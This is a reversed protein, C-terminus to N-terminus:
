KEIIEPTDIGEKQRFERAMNTLEASFEPDQSAQYGLATLGQRTLFAERFMKKYADNVGGPLANRALATKLGHRQSGTSLMSALIRNRAKSALGTTLFVSVGEKGAILRADSSKSLDIPTNADYIKALDYWFNADDEGLVAELKRAFQSKGTKSPSEYAAIFKKADLIPTFPANSTPTGGPFQDLLERIFDGKYLNRSAPSLKNLDTMASKVQGVTSNDSLIAKSLVDPDINSFNTSKALKFIQSNIVERQEKELAMRKGITRTLQDRESQTLAQSMRQVDNFTLDAVKNGKLLRINKNLSELSRQMNGGANNGYLSKLMGPDIKIQSIPKANVGGIGIDNLYQAQMLGLIRDAEGARTPDSQGLQRLATAVRDVTAPESMVKSVIERPTTAQEGAAEKLINGLLNKEFAVREQVKKTTEEFLDGINVVSGNPLTTNISGYVNRRYDSLRAAIAAGFADTTKGGVANEVRANRFDRIFNDFDESGMPRSLVVLDEIENKLDQTPNKAYKARAEQLLKPADRRRRLRAEVGKIASDDISGSVNIENRKMSAVLDLMEEPTTRFGGQDALNFIEGYAADVDKKAQEEAALISTRLADGLDDINSAKGSTFQRELADKVVRENSKTAVAISNALSRIRGERNVAIASFDNATIPVTSKVDDALRVLTEQTGRSGAAIGSGAFEGALEKQAQMGEPGALKAGLPVQIVGPVRGQKAALQAERASLRAASRELNKAFENSFPSPIRAARYAPIGVDVLGGTVLEIAAETGRRGLSETPQQEIGYGLRLAEDIITGLGLRTLASAGLGTAPIKTLAITGLGAAIQAPTLLAEVAAAGALGAIGKDFTTKVTGDPMKILFETNGGVNLPSINADPFNKQLLQAKSEPTPLTGMQARLGAPLMEAETGGQGVPTNTLQGAIERNRAMKAEVDPQTVKPMVPAYSSYTPLDFTTPAIKREYIPAALEKELAARDQQTAAQEQELLSTYSSELSKAYDGLVEAKKMLKLKTEEDGAEKAKNIYAGIDVIGARVRSLESEIYKKDESM